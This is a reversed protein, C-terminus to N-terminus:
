PNPNAFAAARIDDWDKGQRVEQGGQVQIIVIQDGRSNSIKLLPKFNQPLAAVYKALKKDRKKIQVALFDYGSLVEVSEEAMHEKAKQLHPMYFGGGSLYALQQENAYIWSGEPTNSKLWEIAPPIHHDRYGFSLQSDLVLIAAMGILFLRGNRSITKNLPSSLLQGLGICLPVLLLLTILILYRTQLFQTQAFFVAVVVTVVLLTTRYAAHRPLHLLRRRSVFLGILIIPASFAKLTKAVLIGLLLLFVGLNAFERSYHSLVHETLNAKMLRLNHGLQQVFGTYEKLTNQLLTGVPDVEVVQEGLLAMLLCAALLSYIKLCALARDKLSLSRNFLLSIPTVLMPIAAEPRLLTALLSLALWLLLGSLRIGQHLRILQVLALLSFAWYGFDRIIYDRYACLAPYSVIIFAAVWQANGKGGLERVLAVFAYGLLAMLMLNIVYAGATASIGLLGSLMGISAPYFPRHYINEAAEWGQLRFVDASVLYLTADNNLGDGMAILLVGSLASLLAALVTPRRWLPTDLTPDAFFERAATLRMAATNARDSFEPM